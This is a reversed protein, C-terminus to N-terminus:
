SLRWVADGALRRRTSRRPCGARDGHGATLRRAAQRARPLGARRRWVKARFRLRDHMLPEIRGGFAQERGTGVAEVTADHMLPEIRGGFAQERGTGVAELKADHM